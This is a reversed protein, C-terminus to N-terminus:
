VRFRMKSASVLIALPQAVSVMYQLYSHTIMPILIVVSTSPSLTLWISMTIKIIIMSMPIGYANMMMTVTVIFISTLAYPTLVNSLFLWFLVVFNTFVCSACFQPINRVMLVNECVGKNLKNKSCDSVKNYQM